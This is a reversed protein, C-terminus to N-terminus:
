RLIPVKLSAEYRHGSYDTTYLTMNSWGKYTIGGYKNYHDFQQQLMLDAM